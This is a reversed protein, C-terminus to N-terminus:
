AMQDPYSRFRPLLVETILKDYIERTSPFSSTNADDLALSSHSHSALNGCGNRGSTMESKMAWKTPVVVRTGKNGGGWYEKGLEDKWWVVKKKKRGGM